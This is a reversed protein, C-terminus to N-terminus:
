NVIFNKIKLKFVLFDKFKSLLKLFSRSISLIRKGMKYIKPQEFIRQKKILQLQNNWKTKAKNAWTM